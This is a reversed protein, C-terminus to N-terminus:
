ISDAMFSGDDNAGLEVLKGTTPSTLTITKGADNIYKVFLALCEAKTLYQDTPTPVTGTLEDCVARLLLPVQLITIRGGAYTLNIEFFASAQPQSGIYTDVGTTNLALDATFWKNASDWTFTDQLALLTPGTTGMPSPGVAARLGFTGMDVISPTGIQTSAPDVIQVQLTVTNSQFLDPMSSVSGNFAVIKRNQREITLKLISGPM